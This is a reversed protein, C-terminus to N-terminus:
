NIQNTLAMKAQQLIEPPWQYPFFMGSQLMRDSIEHEYPLLSKKTVSTSCLKYM